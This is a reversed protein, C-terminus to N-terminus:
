QGTPKIGVLRRAEDVRPFWISPDQREAPKTNLIATTAARLEDSERLLRCITGVSETVYDFFAGETEACCLRDLEDAIETAKSM